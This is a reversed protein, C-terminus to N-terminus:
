FKDCDATIIILKKMIPDARTFYFDGTDFWGTILNDESAFRWVERLFLGGATIKIDIEDLSYLGNKGFRMAGLDDDLIFKFKRLAKAEHEYILGGHDIWTKSAMECYYVDGWDAFSAPSILLLALLLKKV